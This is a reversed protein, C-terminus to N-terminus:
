VCSFLSSHSRSNPMQLTSAFHFISADLHSHSPHMSCSKIVPISRSTTPRNCALYTFSATKKPLLVTSPTLINAVKSAPRSATTTSTIFLRHSRLISGAAAAPHHPPLALESPSLVDKVLSQDAKEYPWRKRVDPLPPEIYQKLNIMWTSSLKGASHRCDM